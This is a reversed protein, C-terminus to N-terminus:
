QLRQALISLQLLAPSTGQELKSFTSLKKKQGIAPHGAIVSKREAPSLEHEVVNEAAQILEEYSSFPRRAELRGLLAPVPEFLM